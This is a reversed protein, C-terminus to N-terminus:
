VNNEEESAQRSLSLAPKRGARCRFAVLFLAHLVTAYVTFPQQQWTLGRNAAEIHNQAAPWILSTTTVDKRNLHSDRQQWLPVVLVLAKRQLM